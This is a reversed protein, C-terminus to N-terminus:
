FTKLKLQSNLLIKEYNESLKRSIKFKECKRM